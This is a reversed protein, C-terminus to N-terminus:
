LGLMEGELRKGYPQGFQLWISKLIAIDDETYIRAAGRRSFTPPDKRRQVRLVKIAYKRELGSTQCFDDLLKSRALKGTMRTYRYRMREIYVTLNQDKLYAM